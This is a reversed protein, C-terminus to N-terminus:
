VAVLVLTRMLSIQPSFNKLAASRWGFIYEDDLDMAKAMSENWRM